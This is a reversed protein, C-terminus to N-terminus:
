RLKMVENPVLAIQSITKITQMGQTLQCSCESKKGKHVSFTFNSRVFISVNLKDFVRCRRSYECTIPQAEHHCHCAASALCDSLLDNSPFHLFRTMSGDCTQFDCKSWIQAWCRYKSLWMPILALKRSCCTQFRVSGLQLNRVPASVLKISLYLFFHFIQLWDTVLSTM